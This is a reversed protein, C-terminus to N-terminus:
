VNVSLILLKTRQWVSHLIDIREEFRNQELKLSKPDLMPAFLLPSPTTDRFSIRQSRYGKSRHRVGFFHALWYVYLTGYFSQERADCELFFDGLLQVFQTFGLCLSAFRREQRASLEIEPDALRQKFWAANMLKQFKFDDLLMTFKEIPESSAFETHVALLSAFRISGNPNIPPPKVTKLGLDVGLRAALFRVSVFDYIILYERAADLFLLTSFESEAVSGVAEVSLYGAEVALELLQLEELAQDFSSRFQIELPDVIPKGLSYSRFYRADEPTMRLLNNRALESRERWPGGQIDALRQQHENDM